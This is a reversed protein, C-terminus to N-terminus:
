SLKSLAHLAAIRTSVVAVIALAPPMILVRIFDGFTLQLSPAFPDHGGMIALIVSIILAFVAGIGAAKLVLLGYQKEFIKSVAHDRAGVLHMIDVIDKHTSIGSLAAFASLAAAALVLAWFATYTLARIAGSMRALTTKFHGYDDVIATINNDKLTAEIDKRTPPANPDTVIEVVLPIPLDAMVEGGFWPKLLEEAEERPMLNAELIGPLTMLTNAANTATANPDDVSDTPVIVSLSGAIQQSWHQEARQSTNAFMLMLGTLASIVAIAFGLGWHRADSKPLLPTTQKHDRWIKKM